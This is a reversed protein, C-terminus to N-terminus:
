ISLPVFGYYHCLSSARLLPEIQFWKIYFNTRPFIILVATAAIIKLDLWFSRHEFYWKELAGKLPIVDEVYCRVKEKESEYLIDEENRLIVSGMGTLGPKMKLIVNKINDPYLVFEEEVLPRPGVISMDGKIVNLIQPLENIKTMRLYRGVPLIRPDNKATITGTKHSDRLMTVFKLLGFRSNGMGVREQIFFIYGEGTFRLILAIVLGFPLFILFAPVAVLLDFLRKM